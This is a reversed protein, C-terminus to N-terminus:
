RTAVVVLAGILVTVITLLLSILMRSVATSLGRVEAALAGIKGDLKDNTVFTGAQDSLAQRFENVGEFRKETATEAKTIAKEASALALQVKEDQAKLQATLLRDLADVQVQLTRVDDTPM